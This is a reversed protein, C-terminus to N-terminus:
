ANAIGAAVALRDGTECASDSPDDDGALTANYVAKLVAASKSGIVNYVTQVSVCRGDARKAVTHFLQPRIAHILGKGNSQIFNM